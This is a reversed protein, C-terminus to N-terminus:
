STDKTYLQHPYRGRDNFVTANNKMSPVHSANRIVLLYTEGTYPCEYQVVAYVIHVQTSNYEPTFLNVDVIRGTDSIVYAHSGVVPMNAHSDPETQYDKDRIATDPDGNVNSLLYYIHDTVNIKISKKRKTNDDLDM